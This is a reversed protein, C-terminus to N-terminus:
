YNVAFKERYQRPSCGYKEKFKKYFYGTNEYGAQAIIEEVPIQTQKLMTTVYRYRHNQILEKFSQGTYKKLLTSLYCPNMKFVQATSALTCTRYNSEIYQFISIINSKGLRLESIVTESEYIDVLELFILNLLNNIVDISNENPLDLYEAMLEQMYFKIRSSNESPFLIYNDHVTDEIIANLFFKILINDKSFHSFFIDNFFEREMLLNILIDNEGINGISHFATSDMLLMQGKKLTFREKGNITQECSGSYMYSLEIWDNHMHENVPAFRDHRSIMIHPHFQSKFPRDFSGTRNFVMNYSHKGDRYIINSKMYRPRAKKDRYLMESNSLRRLTDDITESNM